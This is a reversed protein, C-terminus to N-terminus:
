VIGYAVTGIVVSTIKHFDENLFQGWGGDKCFNRRGGYVTVGDEGCGSGNGRMERRDSYWSSCGGNKVGEYTVGRDVRVRVSFCM